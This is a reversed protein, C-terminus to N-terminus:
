GRSVGGHPGGTTMPRGKGMLRCAEAVVRVEVNGLGEKDPEAVMLWRVKVVLDDFRGTVGNGLGQNWLYNPKAVMLWSAKVVLDDFRGAVRNSFRAGMLPLMFLRTRCGDAM